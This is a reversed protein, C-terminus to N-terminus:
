AAAQRRDSSRRELWDALVFRVSNAIPIQDADAAGIQRLLGPEIQVELLESKPESAYLRPIPTGGFSRPRSLRLLLILDNDVVVRDCTGLGTGRKSSATRRLPQLM